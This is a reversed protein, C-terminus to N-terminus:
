RRRRWWILGALAAVSLLTLTGPEPVSAVRFGLGQSDYTLYRGSSTRYIARLGASDNGWFGGRLSRWSGARLM